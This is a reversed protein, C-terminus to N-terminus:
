KAAEGVLAQIADTLKPGTLGTERVKGTRDALITYPCERVGFKVAQENKFKKNKGDFFEPWTAGAAKTEEDLQAADTGLFVGVVALSTPGGAKLAAAARALTDKSSPQGPMWFVVLVVKGKFAKTDVDADNSAKFTMDLVGGKLKRAALIGAAAQGQPKEPYEKALLEYAKIAEETKGMQEYTDAIYRLALPAEPSDHCDRVLAEAEAILQDTKNTMKYYQILLGHAKAAAESNPAAKVVQAAFDAATKQDQEVTKTWRSRNLYARGEEYTVDNVQPTGAFQKRFAECKEILGNFHALAETEAQEATKGRVDLKKSGLTQIEKCRDDADDAWAKVVPLSVFLVAIVVVWLSRM